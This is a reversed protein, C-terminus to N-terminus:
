DKKGDGDIDKGGNYAKATMALMAAGIMAKTFM